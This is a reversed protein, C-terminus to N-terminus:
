VRMRKYSRITDDLISKVMGKETMEGGRGAAGRVTYAYDGLRYSQMGAKGRNEYLATSLDICAQRIDAPYQYIYIVDDTSHTAATTGNVGSEVTLTLTDVSYIYYQESGILINNGASLNTVATVDIAEEGATLDESITTDSVYPTASIGDGYGWMGDIEVGVKIGNAFAGYDSDHSLEIRTKPLTNYSDELGGGYLLYDTTAFTNEYTADGDADTKLAEISLLDPTWLTRGAGNFYKTASTVYFYRNTYRDISRSASECIKRMVTDDTTSSVGLVGKIDQISCYSGFGM